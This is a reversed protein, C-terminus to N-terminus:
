LKWTRRCSKRQHRNERRRGEMQSPNSGTRTARSTDQVAKHRPRALIQKQLFSRGFLKIEQLNFPPKPRSETGEDARHLIIRYPWPLPRNSPTARSRADAAAAIGPEPTKRPAMPPPRHRSTSVRNPRLGVSRGALRRSRLSRWSLGPRNWRRSRRNSSLCPFAKVHMRPLAPSRRAPSSSALATGPAPRM